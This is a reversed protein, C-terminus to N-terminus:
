RHGGGEARQGASTGPAPGSRGSARARSTERADLVAGAARYGETMRRRVARADTLVSVGDRLLDGGSPLEVLEVDAPLRDKEAGYQHRRAVEYALWRASRVSSAAGLPADAGAARLVVVRRAGLEAAERLPVGRVLGGDVLLAGDLPVAPLVGPLAATALLAQVLDGQRLVVPRSRRLDTAVVALPVALDQVRVGPGLLEVVTRALLRARFHQAARTRSSLWPALAGAMTAFRLWTAELRDLTAVTPDSALVAGNVAGISSGVVLDPVYGRELLARMM